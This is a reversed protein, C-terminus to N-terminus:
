RELEQASLESPSQDYYRRPMSKRDELEAVATRYSGPTDLESLPYQSSFSPQSGPPINSTNNFALSRTRRQRRVFFIASASLLAFIIVGVGLGIGAKAGPSLTASSPHSTPTLSKTASSQALSSQALSSQAPSSQSLSIQIVSSSFTVSPILSLSNSPSPSATMSVSSSTLTPASTVFDDAQYRISVGFANIASHTAFTSVFVSTVASADITTLTFVSFGPSYNRYCGNQTTVPAYTYSSPCCIAHTETLSEITVATSTAIEYGSPCIGPSFYQSASAWGSPYCSATSFQPPGLFQYVDSPSYSYHYYDSLCPQQPIFTTTLATIPTSLGQATFFSM